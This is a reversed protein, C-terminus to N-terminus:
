YLLTLWARKHLLSGDGGESYPLQRKFYAFQLDSVAGPNVGNGSDGPDDAHWQFIRGFLTRYRVTRPPRAPPGRSGTFTLSDGSDSGSLSARLGMMTSAARGSEPDSGGPPGSSSGGHGASPGIRGGHDRIISSRLRIPGHDAGRSPAAEVTGCIPTFRAGPPTDRSRHGTPMRCTGQCDSGVGASRCPVSGQATAAPLSSVPMTCYLEKGCLFRLQTRYTQACHM